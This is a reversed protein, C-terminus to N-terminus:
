LKLNAKSGLKSEDRSSKVVWSSGDVIFSELDKPAIQAAIRVAETKHASINAAVGVTVM